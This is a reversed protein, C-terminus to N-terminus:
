ADLAVRNRKVFEAHEASALGKELVKLVTALDGALLAQSDLWLGPFIESRLVGTTDPALKQYVGERLIFWDLEREYTRVVIYEPVGVREYLRLKEHLDISASSAAIEVVLEPAGNVYDMEDLWSRGGLAPDLRMMADPQVENTEDVRWTGNDGVVVGPTAARYVSLWGMVDSHPASHQSFRVPSAVYVVGEILEAKKIEPHADYRREFEVRSLHDGSEPPPPQIAWVEAPRDKEKIPLSIPIASHSM